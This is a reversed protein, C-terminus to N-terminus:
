NASHNGPPSDKRYVGRYSEPLLEAVREMIFTTLSELESSTLKGDEPPLHFPQGYTITLRPHRFIWSLNGELKETGTIGVPIITAGSRLAVLAVGPQGPLMQTNTGRKGEPFIGLALGKKLIEQSKRLAERDFKGRRVPFSGLGRILLNWLLSHFLEEKAMFSIRRPFTIAIFPIDAWSLHNSVIIIPGPPLSLKETNFRCRCLVLLLVKVIFRLPYWLFRM